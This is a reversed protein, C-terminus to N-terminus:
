EMRALPKMTGDGNTTLSLDSFFRTMVIGDRFDGLRAEPREGRALKVDLAEVDGLALQVEAADVTDEVERTARTDAAEAVDEVVVCM